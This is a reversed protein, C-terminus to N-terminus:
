THRHPVPFKFEREDIHGPYVIHGHLEAVAVLSDSMALLEHANTPPQSHHAVRLCAGCEAHNSHELVHVAQAFDRGVVEQSRQLEQRIGIAQIRRQYSSKLEISALIINLMQVTLSSEYVDHPLVAHCLHHLTCATAV